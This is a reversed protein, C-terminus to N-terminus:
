PVLHQIHPSKSRKTVATSLELCHIQHTPTVQKDVLQVVADQSHKETCTPIMVSLSACSSHMYWRPFLRRLTRNPPLIQRDGAVM